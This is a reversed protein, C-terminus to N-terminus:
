AKTYTPAADRGRSATVNVGISSRRTARICDLVKPGDLSAHLRAFKAWILLYIVDIRKGYLFTVKDVDGSKHLSKRKPALIASATNLHLKLGQVDYAQM